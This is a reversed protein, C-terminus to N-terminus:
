SEADHDLACSYRQDNGGILNTDRMKHHHFFELKRTGYTALMNNTVCREAAGHHFARSAELFYDGALCGCRVVLENMSAGPWLM